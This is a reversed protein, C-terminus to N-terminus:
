GSRHSAIQEITTPDLEHGGDFVVLNVGLGMARIRKIDTELQEPRALRDSRGAVLTVETGRLAECFGSTELDEPLRSGWLIIRRVAQRTAVWRCATHAGQSFGLVTLGSPVLGADAVVADLLAIYDAIESVRDERTMWSAGVDRSRGAYFRSLGEPAVIRRGSAIPEFHSLFGKALQGYGHLVLWDESASQEGIVFYRAGRTVTLRRLTAM